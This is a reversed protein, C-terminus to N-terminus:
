QSVAPPEVPEPLPPLEGEFIYGSCVTTRDCGMVAM